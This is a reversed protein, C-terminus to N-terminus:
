MGSITSYVLTIGLCIFVAELKGLGLTLRLITAMAFNVWGMTLMNVVLVLYM